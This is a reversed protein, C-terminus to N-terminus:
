KQKRRSRRPKSRPNKNTNKKLKEPDVINNNHHIKNKM